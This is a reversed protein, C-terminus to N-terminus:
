NTLGELSLRRLILAARPTQVTETYGWFFLRADVNPNARQIRERQESRRKEFRKWIPSQKLRAQIAPSKGTAAAELIENRIRNAVKDQQLLKTEVDWYPRLVGLDEEYRTMVERVLPDKFRTGRFSSPGTGALYNLPVNFQIAEELIISRAEERSEFDLNGTVPDEDLEATLYKIALLDATPMDAVDAQIDGDLEAFLAMASAFRTQNHSQVLDRLAKGQIRGSAVKDRFTTEAQSNLDEWRKRAITTYEQDHLSRSGELKAIEEAVVPNSDLTRLLARGRKAYTSQFDEGPFMEDFAQRRRDWLGAYTQVGIGFAAPLGLFAGTIGHEQIAEDLDQLFLPALRQRIQDPTALDSVEFDEGLFTQGVVLDRALGMTPSLKYQLFKTAIELRDIDQVNGRSVTKRQGTIIQATLKAVQLEGAGLDVRTNNINGKGFDSSRPDINLKAGAAVMLGLASGSVASAAVMDRAVMKRVASSSEFLSLPVQFRSMVFAPSFIGVNLAGKFQELPGLSGRGTARNIWRALGDIEKNTVKVGSKVWSHYQTDFVDARLKNLFTTYARGSQKVGPISNALKSMFAEEMGNLESSIFLGGERSMRGTPRLSIEKAVRATYDESALAKFMAKTAGAFEKTHGILFFGQRFMASVDFSAVISKPLSLVDVMDDEVRKWLPLAKRIERGLDKGLTVEMAKVESVTPIKGFTVLDHLAFGATQRTFVPKDSTRILKLLKDRERGTFGRTLPLPIDANSLAGKQPGRSKKLLIFESDPRKGTVRKPKLARASAALRPELELSRALAVEPRLAKAEKIFGVLMRVMKTSGAVVETNHGALRIGAKVGLQLGKIPLAAPILLMGVNLAVELPSDGIFFSKFERAIRGVVGSQSEEELKEVKAGTVRPHEAVFDELDNRSLTVTDVGDGTVRFGPPLDRGLQEQFQLAFPTESVPTVTLGRREAEDKIELYNDIPDIPDPALEQKSFKRPLRQREQVPALEKEVQQLSNIDAEMGELVQQRPANAERIRFREFPM